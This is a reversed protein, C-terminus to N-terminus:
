GKPISEPQITAVDAIAVYRVLRITTGYRTAQAQLQQLLAAREIKDRHTAVVVLPVRGAPVDGQKLGVQGSGLEDEGIWAFLDPTNM